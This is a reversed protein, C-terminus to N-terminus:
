TASFVVTGTVSNRVEFCLAPNAAHVKQVYNRLGNLERESFLPAQEGRKVYQGTTPNVRKYQKDQTRDLLYLVYTDSQQKKHTGNVVFVLLVGRVFM